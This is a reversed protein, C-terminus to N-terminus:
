FTAKAQTRFVGVSTSDASNVLVKGVKSGDMYIGMGAIATVIKDLKSELASLDVSPPPSTSTAKSAIEGKSLMKLGTERSVMDDAFAVINDKDNLAVTATPTVLARKGYGSKSIVDDGTMAGLVTGGLGVAGGLLAGAVAGPLGLFSGYMAGAGAGAGAAGLAALLSWALNGEKAANYSGVTATAATTALAAIPLMRGVGAGIGGLPGAMLRGFAGGIGGVAKGSAILATNFEIGALLLSIAGSLVGVMVSTVNFIKELTNVISSLTSNAAEQLNEMTKEGSGTTKGALRQIDAISLGFAESLALQESRRLRTIDKGTAALQSRLENFLAGTDGMEALEALRNTDLGFGMAGLEASSELFSEFNGIINDGIQDVKSLDVGIKKADIAARAFSTQFRTGNRALLDSYAAIAQMADKATLNKAEFEAIFKNEADIAAERDGGTQTLFVRRALAQQAPTIGLRVSRQAISAAAEGTLVGGFEEQFVSAAELIQERTIFPNNSGSFLSKFSEVFSSTISRVAVGANIGFMQQVKRIENAVDLLNKSISAFIGVIYNAFKSVKGIAERDDREQKEKARKRQEFLSDEFYAQELMHKKRQDYLSNEFYAQELMHKKRQDFASNEFYAQELMHKTQQDHLNNEFYAQKLMHAQRQNFLDDQFKADELIAKQWWADYDEQLKIRRDLADNMMKAEDRMHAVRQNHLDNMFNAEVELQKAQNELHKRRQEHINNEFIAETEIKKQRDDLSKQWWKDYDAELKQRRVRTAEMEKAELELHLRRQNIIENLFKAHTELAIQIEKYLKETFRAEKEAAKKDHVRGANIDKPGSREEPPPPPSAAPAPTPPKKRGGGGGSSTATPAPSPTTTKKRTRKVPEAVLSPEIAPAVVDPTTPTSVQEVLSPSISPETASVTTPAPTPTVAAVISPAVDVVKPAKPTTTKKSKKAPKEPTAAKKAIQEFLTTHKKELEDLKAELGSIEDQLGKYETGDVIKQLADQNRTISAADSKGTDLMAKREKNIESIRSSIRTKETKSASEFAEKLKNYEALLTADKNKIETIRAVAARVAGKLTVVTTSMSRWKERKGELEERLTRIQSYTEELQKEIEM